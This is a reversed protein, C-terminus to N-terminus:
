YSVNIGIFLTLWLPVSNPGPLLWFHFCWPEPQFSAVAQVKGAPEVIVTVGMLNGPFLLPLPLFFFRKYGVATFGLDKRCFLLCYLTEPGGPSWFEHHVPVLISAASLFIHPQQVRPAPIRAKSARHPVPNTHLWSPFFSIALTM